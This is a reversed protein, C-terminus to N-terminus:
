KISSELMWAMKQHHELMETAINLTVEDSSASAEKILKNFSEILTLRDKYLEKIMQESGSNENGDKISTLSSFFKFSARTKSGLARIREAIVDVDNALETYQEEFFSHLPRFLASTVNWHYNQTKLYLSYTDALCLELSKILKSNSM